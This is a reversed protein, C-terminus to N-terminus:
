PAVGAVVTVAAGLITLKTVIFDTSSVKFCTFVDGATSTYGTNTVNNIDNSDTETRLEFASVAFLTIVEGVEAADPLDFEDTSASTQAIKFYDYQNLDARTLSAATPAASITSPYVNGNVNLKGVRTGFKEGDNFINKIKTM